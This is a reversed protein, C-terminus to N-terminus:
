VLRSYDYRPAVSYNIVICPRGDDAIQTGFEVDLYGDDVSWGLEYGLKTYDLGIEGYFENLSVYMENLMRRNIINVAKKIQEIDSEFYRGSHWDLCLTSGKGTIIVDTKTVPRQEVHDKDIADRIAKEKKEGLTEVVKEKYESLATESLKYATALVANRRANVSSAGIICAISVVGTVTAPIYCKWAAKVTEVPTLEELNEEEKKAEILRMAKPTARVALITSAVMGATGIGTLIEPSYKTIFKEANKFFKAVNSKNM